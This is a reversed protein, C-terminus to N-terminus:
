QVVFVRAIAGDLTTVALEPGLGAPEFVFTHADDPGDQVAFVTGPAVNTAGDFPELVNSASVLTLNASGGPVELGSAWALAVSGLGDTATALVTLEAEPVVSMAAVSLPISAVGSDGDEYPTPVGSTEFRGEDDTTVPPRGAVSVSVGAVPGGTVALVRGVVAIGAEGEIGCAVLLALVSGALARGLGHAVRRNGMPM